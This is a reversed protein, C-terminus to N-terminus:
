KKYIAKWPHIDMSNEYWGGWKDLNILNQNTYFYLPIVAQDESVMIEEAQM